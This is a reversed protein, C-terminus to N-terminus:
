SIKSLSVYPINFNIATLISATQEDRAIKQPFIQCSLVSNVSPNLVPFIWNLKQSVFYLLKAKETQEEGPTTSQSLILEIASFYSQKSDPSYVADNSAYYVSSCTLSMVGLIIAELGVTSSHVLVLSAGQILDYTNIESNAHIYHLRGPFRLALHKIYASYDDKSGLMELREAPHQRIKVSHSTNELIWETTTCIWDITNEFLKHKDLGATDWCINLAFLVYKKGVFQTSYNLSTRQSQFIDLGSRRSNLTTMVQEDIKTRDLFDPSNLAPILDTCHAAIGNRSIIMEGHVGSDYSASRINLRKAIESIVGSPGCLGNPVILYDFHNSNLIFTANRSLKLLQSHVILKYPNSPSINETRLDHVANLHALKNIIIPPLQTERAESESFYVVKNKRKLILGLLRLAMIQYNPNDQPRGFQEDVIIFTIHRRYTTKLALGLMLSYFPVFTKLWPALVVGISLHNGLSTKDYRLIFLLTSCTGVCYRTLSFLSKLIRRFEAITQM